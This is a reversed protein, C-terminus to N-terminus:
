ITSLESHFTLATVICPSKSTIVQLVLPPRLDSPLQEELGAAARRFKKVMREEIPVFRTGPKGVSAPDQAVILALTGRFVPSLIRVAEQAWVDNQVVRMVREYEPCMDPCTGVLTIAESLKRPVDPDAYTGNRIAEARDKM